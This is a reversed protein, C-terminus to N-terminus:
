YGNGIENLKQLLEERTPLVYMGAYAATRVAWSHFPARVQAYATSAAERLSCDSHVPPFTLLSFFAILSRRLVLSPGIFASLLCAILSRPSPGILSLSPSERTVKSPEALVTSAVTSAPVFRSVTSALVAASVHCHHAPRALVTPVSTSAPSPPALVTSSPPPLHRRLPPSSPPPLSPPSRLLRDVLSRPSRALSLPPSPSPLRSSETSVPVRHLRPVIEPLFCLRAFFLLDRHPLPSCVPFFIPVFDLTKKFQDRAPKRM